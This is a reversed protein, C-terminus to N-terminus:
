RLVVMAGSESLCILQDSLILRRQAFVRGPFWIENSSTRDWTLTDWDTKCLFIQGSCLPSQEVDEREKQPMVAVRECLFKIFSHLWSQFM